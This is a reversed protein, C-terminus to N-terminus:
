AAAACLQDSCQARNRSNREVVSNSEGSGNGIAIFDGVAFADTISIRVANVYAIDGANANAACLGCDTVNLCRCVHRDAGKDHRASNLCRKSNRCSFLSFTLPEEVKNRKAENRESHCINSTIAGISIRSFTTGGNATTYFNNTSTAPWWKIACDTSASLTIWQASPPM